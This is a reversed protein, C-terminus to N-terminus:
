KFGGGFFGPQKFTKMGLQDVAERFTIGDLQMVLDIVSGGADCGMCHWLNKSPTVIFSAEDEDHFPCRGKMDGSGHRTLEIGHAACVHLISVNQKLQALEADDYKRSRAM